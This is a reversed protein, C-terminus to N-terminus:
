PSPPAPTRTTQSRDQGDDGCKLDLFVKVVAPDFHSGAQAAIHDCAKATPWAEHYRRANVLADWTDAVAFIRAALPIEEGRLGQPYGSGDWREHHGYPIELAPQLYAIHSLMEMAYVPHKHMVEREDETLPGEKMLIADAIGMKGIDHLLAGRTVQVLQEDRMGFRKAIEVTLRVVRRTHGETEKDRLELAHSWGELTTDYAQVLQANITQLEQEHTAIQALARLTLRTVLFVFLGGGGFVAATLIELPFDIRSVQLLLFFLYGALFFGMLGTMLRWKARIEQPIRPAAQLHLCLSATLFLAGIFVAAITILQLGAM